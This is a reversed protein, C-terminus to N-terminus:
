FIFMKEATHQEITSTAIIAVADITVYKITAFAFVDLASVDVTDEKILFIVGFAELVVVIFVFHRIL